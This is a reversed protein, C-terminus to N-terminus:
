TPWLAPDALGLAKMRALLAARARFLHTKVTGVPCGLMAAVEAVAREEFYYLTIVRRPGDPLEDVLRRIAQAQETGPAADHASVADAEAQVSEDALSLDSRARELATLCRNRTIAYIWTSLAARADFGPLARWVRVLSEQAADQAAATDRLMALCLRYVKKEYRQAILAFAAARDDRELLAQIDGDRLAAASATVPPSFADM